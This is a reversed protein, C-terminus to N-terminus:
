VFKIWRYDTVGKEIGEREIPIGKENTKREGM